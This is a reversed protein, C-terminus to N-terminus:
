GRLKGGCQLGQHRANATACEAREQEFSRLAMGTLSLGISSEPAHTITFWESPVLTLRAVRPIAEIAM